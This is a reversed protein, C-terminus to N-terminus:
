SVIVLTIGVEILQDNERTVAFSRAGFRLHVVDQCTVIVFCANASEGIRM